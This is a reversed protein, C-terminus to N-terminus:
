PLLKNMEDRIANPDYHTYTKKGEGKLSHGVIYEMMSNDLRLDGWM